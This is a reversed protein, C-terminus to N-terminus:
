ENGKNKTPFYQSLSSDGGITQQKLSSVPFSCYDAAYFASPRHNGSCGIGGFPLASSAGTLPRNWNVIGARIENRFQNFKSESESILGAALGFRTQNAQKIAQEFHTYRIVQLLPGFIEEDPLLPIDTVDIIGPTVFANGLDSKQCAALPTGGAAILKQQQALLNSVAQSSIM